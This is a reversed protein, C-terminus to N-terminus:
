LAVEDALGRARAALHPMDKAELSGPPTFSASAALGTLVKRRPPVDSSARSGIGDSKLCFENMFLIGSINSILSGRGTRLLNGIYKAVLEAASRKQERGTSPPRSLTPEFSGANSSEQM